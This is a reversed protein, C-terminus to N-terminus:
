ITSLGAEIVSYFWTQSNYSTPRLSAHNCAWDSLGTQNQLGMSWTGRNTPNGWWSYQLPNSNEGGPFRGSGPIFGSDGTDRANAPLNKVVSDDPFGKGAWTINRKSGDGGHNKYHQLTVEDGVGLHLVFDLCLNIWEEYENPWSIQELISLSDLWLM